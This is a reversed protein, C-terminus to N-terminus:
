ALEELNKERRANFKAYIKLLGPMGIIILCWADGKPPWHRLLALIVGFAKWREQFLQFMPPDWQSARIEELWSFCARKICRSGCITQLKLLLSKAPGRKRRDKRVIIANHSDKVTLFQSRHSTRCPIPCPSLWGSRETEMM